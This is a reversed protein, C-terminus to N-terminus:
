SFLVSADEIMKLTSQYGGSVIYWSVADLAIIRNNQAATTENVLANDLVSISPEGGIAASRDVVFIVAPNLTKVYEFSVTDGHANTDGNGFNADASLFGLENHIFGFRSGIGYGSIDDGNTMLILTKFGSDVAKQKTSLTKTDLTEYMTDFIDLNGFIRKLNTMNEKISSMYAKNDITVSLIAVGGLESKIADYAWASRSSIIVLDPSFLDLTDFDPQFLTGASTISTKNYSSLYAPLNSKVVALKKIGLVDIGIHDFIDLIGYDFVAVHKPNTPIIEKRTEVKANEDERSTSHTINQTITITEPYSKDDIVIQCGVLMFLVVVFSTTLAIKKMM